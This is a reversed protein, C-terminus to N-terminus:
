SSRSQYFTLSYRRTALSSIPPWFPWFQGHHPFLGNLGLFGITDTSGAILSLVFPLAWNVLDAAASATNLLRSSTASLISM